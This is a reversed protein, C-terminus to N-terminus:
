RKLYHSSNRIQAYRSLIIDFCFFMQESLSIINHDPFSCFTRFLFSYVSLYSSPSFFLGPLLFLSRDLYLGNSFAWSTLQWSLAEDDSVPLIFILIQSPWDHAMRFINQRDKIGSHFGLLPFLLKDSIKGFLPSFVPSLGPFLNEVYVWSWNQLFIRHLTRPLDSRFAIASSEIESFTYM